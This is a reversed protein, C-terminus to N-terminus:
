CSPACALKIICRGGTRGPQSTQLKDLPVDHKLEICVSLRLVLVEGTEREEEMALGMEGLRYRPVGDAQRPPAGPLSKTAQATDIIKM